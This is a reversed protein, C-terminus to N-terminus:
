RRRGRDALSARMLPPSETDSANCEDKQEAHDNQNGNDRKQRAVVWEALVEGGAQERRSLSRYFPLEIQEAAIGKAPVDQAAQSQGATDRQEDPERGNDQAKRDSDNKPRIAPKKRPQISFKIM